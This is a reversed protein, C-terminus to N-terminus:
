AEVGGAGAIAVRAYRSHPISPVRLLVVARDLDGLVSRVMRDLWPLGDQSDDVFRVTLQGVCEMSLGSGVLSEAVNRLTAWIQAALLRQAPAVDELVQVLGREREIYHDLEDTWLIQGEGTIPLHDSAFVLDGAKVIAPPDGEADPSATRELADRTATIEIEIVTGKHGVEDVPIVQVSPGKSGFWYAHVRLADAFDGENHIFLTANCVQGLGLGYARLFADFREYLVWTQAIVPGMRYDPHSRGRQLWRGEPAIDSFSTVAWSRDPALALMGATFIYPGAAVAQSYLAAAKGVGPAELLTRRGLRERGAPTLAIADIEYNVSDGRLSTLGLGSSPAAGAHEREQRISELVPFHRKDRQYMHQRLVSSLGGSDELSRELVDYIARAQVHFPAEALGTWSAAQRLDESPGKWALSSFFRFPGRDVFDPFPIQAGARVPAPALSRLRGGVAADARPAV